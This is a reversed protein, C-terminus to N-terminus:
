QSRGEQSPRLAELGRANLFLRNDAGHPDHCTQCTAGGVTPHKATAADALEHCDLCLAQGARLLLFKEGAEHPSHCGVCYGAEAPAHRFTHAALRDKHCRICLDAGKGRLKQSYTSEHCEACQGEAYPRHLVGTSDIGSTPTQAPQSVIGAPAEAAPPTERGPPSDFLLDLVRQRSPQSCGAQLALACLIGAGVTRHTVHAKM